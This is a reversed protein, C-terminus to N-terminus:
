KNEEICQETSYSINSEQITISDTSGEEGKGNRKKETEKERLMETELIVTECFQNEEM